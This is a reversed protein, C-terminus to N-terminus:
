ALVYSFAAHDTPRLNCKCRVVNLIEDPAAPLDTAVPIYRDDVIRWGWEEPKMDTSMLTKWQIVQLHVRYVHFKTANETPPLREPRLQVTSSATMNM